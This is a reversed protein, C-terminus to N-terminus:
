FKFSNIKEKLKESLQQLDVTQQTIEDMTGTIQETSATVEETASASEESIASISEIQSVINDKQGAIEDTNQRIENVKETLIRVAEMIENFLVQTEKVLAEQEKVNQNTIRMAEISNVTKNSIDEIIAKIRITSENSQEALKRIENAVVAFGKGSEGARAAEISANLSLLNTQNTIEDITNSIADIQQMSEGTEYVLESVKTTASMTNDSKEKLAYVHDLGQKTLNKANDALQSMSKTSEDILTLQDSLESISSAGDSANQAQEMAGKAVEDVARAVEGLSSNTEEAMSSLSISSDLVTDSAEGVERFLASINATMENFHNGLLNFEDKSKISISVTLDGHALRDFADLLRKINRAIPISFLIAAAVAVLLTLIIVNIITTRITSTDNSLESYNMSAVIKWGTLESTSHSSFKDAGNFEYKAFGEEKSAIETWNYLEKAIDTGILSPDPHALMRGSKDTVYIYGGDGIAIESLSASFTALDIDMGAVGISKNDKQISSVISIVMHKTATDEYPETIVIEGPNSIAEIYWDRKRHDFGEPLVAAPDTYFMGSETGVYMNIVSEDTNKINNILGKAFEFYTPNEAEIVNIDNSLIKIMNSMASFYNDLGRAIEHTTQKATTEIKRELVNMSILYSSIGSILLPVLSIIILM